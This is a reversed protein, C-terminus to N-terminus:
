DKILQLRDCLLWFLYSSKQDAIFLAKSDRSSMGAQLKVGCAFSAEPDVCFLMSQFGCMVNM